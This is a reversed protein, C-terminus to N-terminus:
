VEVYRNYYGRRFTDLMTEHLLTYYVKKDDVQFDGRVMYAYFRGCVRDIVEPDESTVISLSHRDYYMAKEIEKLELGYNTIVEFDELDDLTMAEKMKFLREQYGNEPEFEKELDLYKDLCLSKLMHAAM